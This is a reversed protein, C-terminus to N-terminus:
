AGHDGVAYVSLCDGNACSVPGKPSGREPTIRCCGGKLPGVGHVRDHSPVFVGVQAQAEAAGAREEAATYRKSLSAIDAEATAQAQRATQLQEM